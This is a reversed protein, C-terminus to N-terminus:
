PAPHAGRSSMPLEWNPASEMVKTISPPHAPTLRGGMSRGEPGRLLGPLIRGRCSEVFRGCDPRAVGGLPAAFLWAQPVYELGLCYVIALSLAPCARSRKM